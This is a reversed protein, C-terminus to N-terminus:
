LEQFCTLFLSFYLQGETDVPSQNWSGRHGFHQFGCSALSDNDRFSIQLGHQGELRRLLGGRNLQFNSACVENGTHHNKFDIDASTGVHHGRYGMPSPKTHQYRRPDWCGAWTVSYIVPEIALETAPVLRCECTIASWTCSSPQSRGSVAAALDGQTVAAALDGQM